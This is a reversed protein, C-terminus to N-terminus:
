SHGMSLMRRLHLIFFTSSINHKMLCAWQHISLLWSVTICQEWEYHVSDFETLQVTNTDKKSMRGWHRARIRERKREWSSLCLGSSLPQYCALQGGSLRLSLSLSPSYPLSFPRYLSHSISRLWWEEWSWVRQATCETATEDQRRRPASLMHDFPLSKYQCLSTYFPWENLTNTHTHTPIYTHIYTHSHVIHTHTLTNSYHQWPEGKLHRDTRLYCSSM